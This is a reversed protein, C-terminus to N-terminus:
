RLLLQRPLGPGHPMPVPLADRRWEAPNIPDGLSNWGSRTAPRVGPHLGQLYAGAGQQGVPIDPERGTTLADILAERAFYYRRASRVARSSRRPNAPQGGTGTKRTTSAAMSRVGRGAERGNGRHIDNRKPKRKEGANRKALEPNLDTETGGDQYRQIRAQREMQRHLLDIEKDDSGTKPDKLILQVLRAETRRRFASWRHQGPGVRRPSELQAATKEKEGILEAIECM